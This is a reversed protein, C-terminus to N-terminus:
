AMVDIQSGLGDEDAFEEGGGEPNVSDMLSGFEGEPASEMDGGSTSEVPPMANGAEDPLAFAEGSGGTGTASEGAPADKSKPPPPVNMGGSIGDIAM